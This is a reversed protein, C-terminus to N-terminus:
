ASVPANGSPTRRVYTESYKKKDWSADFISSKDLSTDYRYIALFLYQFVTIVM